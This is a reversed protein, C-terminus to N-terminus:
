ARYPRKQGGIYWHVLHVSHVYAACMFIQSMPVWNLRVASCVVINFSSSGYVTFTHIVEVGRGTVNIYM